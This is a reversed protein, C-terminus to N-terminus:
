GNKHMNSFISAIDLDVSAKGDHSSEYDVDDRTERMCIEIEATEVIGYLNVM